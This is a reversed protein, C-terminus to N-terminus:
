QTGGQKVVREGVFVDVLQAHIEEAVGSAPGRRCIGRIARFREATSYIAYREADPSRNVMNTLEDIVHRVFHHQNRLQSLRAILIRTLGAPLTVLHLHPRTMSM